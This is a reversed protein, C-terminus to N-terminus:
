YRTGRLAAQKHKKQYSLSAITTTSSERYKKKIWTLHVLANHLLTDDEDRMKKAYKEEQRNEETKDTNRSLIIPWVCRFFPCYPFTCRSVNKVLLM